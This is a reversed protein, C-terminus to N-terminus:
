PLIKEHFFYLLLFYFPIGLFTLHKKRIIYLKGFNIILLIIIGLLFLLLIPWGSKFFLMFSIYAKSYENILMALHIIGPYLVFTFAYLRMIGQSVLFYIFIAIIIFLIVCHLIATNPNFFNVLFVDDPLSTPSLNQIDINYFRYTLYIKQFLFKSLVLTSVVISIDLFNRAFKILIKM